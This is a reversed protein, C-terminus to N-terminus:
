WKRKIKPREVRRRHLLIMCVNGKVNDSSPFQNHFPTDFIQDLRFLTPPFIPSKPRFYPLLKPFRAACWWGGPMLNRNIRKDKM